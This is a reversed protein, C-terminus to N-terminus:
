YLSLTTGDGLVAAPQAHHRERGFLWYHESRLRRLYLWHWLSRPGADPPAAAESWSSVLHRWAAPWHRRRIHIPDLGYWGARHEALLLGRERALARLHDDLKRVRERAAAYPLRSGPVLVSRMLLFRARSVHEISVLPLPTLVVRAGAALLRGVCAEVWGVIEPLPIEFLL